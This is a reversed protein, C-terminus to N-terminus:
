PLTTSYKSMNKIVREIYTQPEITTGGARKNSGANWRGGYGKDFPLVVDSISLGAPAASGLRMKANWKQSQTPVPTFTIILTADPLLAPLFEGDISEGLVAWAIGSQVSFTGNSVLEVAMERKQQRKRLADRACEDLTESALLKQLNCLSLYYDRKSDLAQLLDAIPNEDGTHDAAIAAEGFKPLPEIEATMLAAALVSDCDTHNIVVTEGNSAAGNQTIYELALNASSVHRRMCPTPAHHDINIIREEEYGWPREVFHEAGTVHFDCAFIRGTRSVNLVEQPSVKEKLELLVPNHYKIVIATM